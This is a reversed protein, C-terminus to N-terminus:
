LRCECECVRASLAREVRLYQGIGGELWLGAAWKPNVVVQDPCSPEEGLDTTAHQTSAMIELQANMRGHMWIDMCICGYGHMWVGTCGYGHWADMGMYDMSMGHM